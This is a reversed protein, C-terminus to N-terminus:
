KARRKALESVTVFTYGKKRLADIVGPVAAMSAQRSKYMVHLLIISGPRVKDAVHSIINDSSAGIESSDEPSVDWMVSTIGRESLYYPLVVLKKGYPPRFTLPGTYGISRIAAETTDVESKVKGYTTLILRPHTFSHNGLEHGAAVIERAEQPNKTVEQGTLFFTAKVDKEKLVALVEQTFRPTPGDDFTLAVVKEATDVRNFMDGFLQFSRAASLQWIGM